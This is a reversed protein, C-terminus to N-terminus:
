KGKLSDLETLWLQKQRSKLIKTECPFRYVLVLIYRTQKHETDILKFSITVNQEHQATVGSDWTLSLTSRRVDRWQRAGTRFWSGKICQNENITDRM